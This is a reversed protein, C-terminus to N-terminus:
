ALFTLCFRTKFTNMPVTSTEPLQANAIGRREYAKRSIEKRLAHVGLAREEADNIYFLRGDETKVRMIECFHSWSLKTSATSLINKGCSAHGGDLIVSNIYKGLEWYMLVIERNAYAGARSKRMEIIESVREFIQNEDIPNGAQTIIAKKKESM